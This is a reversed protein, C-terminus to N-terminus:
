IGHVPGMSQAQAMYFHQEAERLSMVDTVGGRDEVGGLGTERFPQFIKLFVNAQWQELSM